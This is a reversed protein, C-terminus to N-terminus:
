RAIIIRNLFSAKPSGKKTIGGTTQKGGSRKKSEKRHFFFSERKAM